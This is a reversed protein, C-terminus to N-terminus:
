VLYENEATWSGSGARREHLKCECKDNKRM